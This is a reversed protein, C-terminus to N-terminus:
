ARPTPEADRLIKINAGIVTAVVAVCVAVQFIARVGNAGGSGLLAVALLALLGLIGLLGINGFMAIMRLAPFVRRPVKPGVAILLANLAFVVFAVVLIAQPITDIRETVLIGLILAVIMVNALVAGWHSPPLGPVNNRHDGMTAKTWSEAPHPPLRGGRLAWMLRPRVAGTLAFASRHQPM